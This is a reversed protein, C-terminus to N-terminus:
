ITILYLLVSIRTLEISVLTALIFGTVVYSSSYVILEIVSRCSFVLVVSLTLIMFRIELIYISCNVM